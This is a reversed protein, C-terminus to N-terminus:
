KKGKKSAKKTDIMKTALKSISRNPIESFNEKKQYHEETVAKSIFYVMTMTQDNQFLPGVKDGSDRAIGCSQSIAQFNWENTSSKGSQGIQNNLCEFM